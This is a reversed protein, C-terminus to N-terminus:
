AAEEWYDHNAPEWPLFAGHKLQRPWNREERSGRWAVVDVLNPHEGETGKARRLGYGFEPWRLFLSSGAPRMRRDGTGDESHGPHAESMLACGHRTRITDLVRVLERAPGEENMNAYHLRYLPGIVLLDPTNIAVKRELWGADSGLLNLGNPQVEFRLNERWAARDDGLRAVVSRFRRRSQSLGNECDVVLVRLGQRGQGLQAGTFPHRGAALCVAFQTCLYSKGLGETGTLVIREGRELMGPVLWDYTDTGALLESLPMSPQDATLGADAAEAADIAERLDGTFDTVPEAWGNIWSQELRQRIRTAAAALNRRAACHLVREAYNPAHPLHWAHEMLTLLYPGTDSGFGQRSLLDTMVLHTDVPKGSRIRGAIVAAITAHKPLWWASEPVAVLHAGCSGPDTLAAGLLAQEAGVDYADDSM